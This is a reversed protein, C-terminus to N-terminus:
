TALAERRKVSSGGRSGRLMNMVPALLARGPYSPGGILVGMEHESDGFIRGFDGMKSGKLCDQCGWFSGRRSAEPREFITMKCYYALTGSSYLLQNKSIGIYRVFFLVCRRGAKNNNITSCSFFIRRKGMKELFNESDM